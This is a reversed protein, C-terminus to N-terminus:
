SNRLIYILMTALVLTTTVNDPLLVTIKRLRSTAKTSKINLRSILSFVQMSNEVIRVLFLTFSVPSTVFCAVELM